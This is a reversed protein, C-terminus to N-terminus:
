AQANPNNADQMFEPPLSTGVPRAPQAKHEKKISPVGLTGPASSTTPVKEPVAEKVSLAPEPKSEVVRDEDPVIQMKPQPQPQPRPEVPSGGNGGYNSNNNAALEAAQKKKKRSRVVLVIIVVVVLVIIGIIIFKKKPTMEKFM